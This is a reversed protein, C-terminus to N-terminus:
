AEEQVRNEMNVGEEFCAVWDSIETSLSKSINDYYNFIKSIEGIKTLIEAFIYADEVLGKIKYPSILHYIYTFETANVNFAIVEDDNEFKTDKMNGLMEKLEIAFFVTNVDYELKKYLLDILFRWQKRNLNLEYKTFKFIEAYERWLQQAQIYLNEKVEETEGKGNNSSMFENISTVKNDLNSISEDSITQYQNNNETFKTEPKVVTTEIKM